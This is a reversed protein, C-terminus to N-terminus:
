LANQASGGPHATPSGRLFYRPSRHNGSMMLVNMTVEQIDRDTNM